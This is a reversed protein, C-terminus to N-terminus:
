MLHDSQAHLFQPAALHRDFCESNDSVQHHLAKHSEQATCWTHRHTPANAPKVPLIQHMQLSLPNVPSHADVTQFQSNYDRIEKRPLSCAAAINQVASHM